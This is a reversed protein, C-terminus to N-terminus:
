GPGAEVAGLFGFDEGEAGAVDYYCGVFSEDALLLFGAVRAVVSVRKEREEPM